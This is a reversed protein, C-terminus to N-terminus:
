IMEKGKRYAKVPNWQNMPMAFTVSRVFAWYHYLSTFLVSAKALAGWRTLKAVAPIEYLVSKGLINNLKRATKGEAYLQRREMVNGDKDVYANADEDFEVGGPSAKGSKAYTAFGPNTIERWSSDIPKLSFTGAALGAEILLRNYQARAQDKTALKQAEIAGKVKLERGAAWGHLITPISRANNADANQKFAEHARPTPGKEQEELSRWRRMSYYKIIGKILGAARARNGLERNFKVLKTDAFEREEPTLNQSRLYVEAHTDKFGKGDEFGKSLKAYVEAPTERTKSQHQKLDIYLHMARNLLVRERHLKATPMSGKPLLKRILEQELKEARDDALYNTLDQAALWSDLLGPLKANKDTMEFVPMKNDLLTPHPSDSAAVQAAAFMPFGGAASERLPGTIPLAPVSESRPRGSPDLVEWESAMAPGEGPPYLVENDWDELGEVAEDFRVSGNETVRGAAGAEVYFHPYREVDVRSRVRTGAMLPDASGMPVRLRGAKAGFPKGIKNADNPMMRDYFDEMGKGGITLDDGKVSGSDSELIQKAIAKGVVDEIPKGIAGSTGSVVVGRRDIKAHFATDEGQTASVAKVGRLDAGLGMKTPPGPGWSPPAEDLSDWPGGVVAGYLNLAYFKDPILSPVTQSSSWKIEDVVKRLESEYRKVQMKGTTWALYDYGNTAAWQVMRKMALTRWTTKFPADPVGVPIGAEIHAALDDRDSEEIFARAESETGAFKKIGHETSVVWQRARAYGEKRGAQHWDSQVEEMFLVRKGDATTRDNFRVHALVNPFEGYHGGTYSQPSKHRRVTAFSTLSDAHDQAEAHTSYSGVVERGRPEAPDLVEWAEAAKEPLRLLVERYNEGGPEVLNGDGFKTPLSNTGASFHQEDDID